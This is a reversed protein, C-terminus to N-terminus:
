RYWIQEFDAPSWIPGFLSCDGVTENTSNFFEGDVTITAIPNCQQDAFKLIFGILEGSPSWSPYEGGLAGKEEIVREIEPFCNESRNNLEISCILGRDSYIVEEGDSSWPMNNVYYGSNSDNYYSDRISANKLLEIRESETDLLLLEEYGYTLLSPNDGPSIQSTLVLLFNATPSWRARAVNTSSVSQTSGESINVIKVITELNSSDDNWHVYAVETSDFSWGSLDILREPESIFVEEELVLDFVAIIYKDNEEEHVAYLLFRGNPSWYPAWYRASNSLKSDQFGTSNLFTLEGTALTVIALKNQRPTEETRTITALQRGDPSWPQDSFVMHKFPDTSRPSGSHWLINNSVMLMYNYTNTILSSAPELTLTPIPTDTEEPIVTQRMIPSVTETAPATSTQSPTLSSTLTQTVVITSTAQNLETSPIAVDTPEISPTTESTLDMLSCSAQWLILMSLMLPINLKRMIYKLNSCWVRESKKM